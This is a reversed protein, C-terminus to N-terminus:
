RPSRRSGARCLQRITDALTKAETVRTRSVADSWHIFHCYGKDAIPDFIVAASSWPGWPLTVPASGAAASALCSVTEILARSGLRLFIRAREGSGNASRSSNTTTQSYPQAPEPQAHAPGPTSPPWSECIPPRRPPSGSRTRRASDRAVRRPRQRRMPSNGSSVPHRHRVSVVFLEDGRQIGMANAVEDDSRVRDRKVSSGACGFIQADQRHEASLADRGCCSAAGNVPLRQGVSSRAGTRKVTAVDEAMALALGDFMACLDSSCIALRVARKASPQAAAVLM